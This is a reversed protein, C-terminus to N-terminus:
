WRWRGWRAAGDPSARVVLDALSDSEARRESWAVLLEGAPGLTAIPRNEASSSVSGHRPNVRVPLAFTTGSDASLAIWLDQGASDGTVWTLAIRGHRDATLSADTADEGVLFSPTLERVAAWDDAGRGACGALAFGALAALSVIAFSRDSM